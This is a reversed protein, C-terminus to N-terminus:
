LLDDAQIIWAEWVVEEVTAQKVNPYSNWRKAYQVYASMAM